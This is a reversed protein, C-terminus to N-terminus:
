SKPDPFDIPHHTREYAEVLTVLVDLYIIDDRGRFGPEAQVCWNPTLTMAFGFIANVMPREIFSFGPM